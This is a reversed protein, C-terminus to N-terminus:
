SPISQQVQVIQKQLGALERRSELRAEDELTLLEALLLKADKLAETEPDMGDQRAQKAAQEALDAAINERRLEAELSARRSLLAQHREELDEIERWADELSANASSREREARRILEQEENVEASLRNVEDALWVLDASRLPRQKHARDLDGQLESVHSGLEDTTFTKAVPIPDSTRRKFIEQVSGGVRCAADKLNSDVQLNDISEAIKTLSEKRASSVTKVFDGGFHNKEVEDGWENMARWTGRLSHAFYGAVESVSSPAGESSVIEGPTETM